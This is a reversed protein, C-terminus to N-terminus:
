ETKSEKMWYLTEFALLLFAAGLLYRWAIDPSSRAVNKNLENSKEDGAFISGIEEASALEQDSEVAPSNVAVFRDVGNARIKYVGPLPMSSLPHMQMGKVTTVKEQGSQDIVTVQADPNGGEWLPDGCDIESRDHTGADEVISSVLLPFSPSTGLDSVSRELSLPWFFVQGRGTPQQLLAPEGTSWRMLVNANKGPVLNFLRKFKVALISSAVDAGSRDFITAAEDSAHLFSDGVDRVREIVEFPL